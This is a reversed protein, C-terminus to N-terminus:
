WVSLGTALGLVHGLLRLGDQVWQVVEPPLKAAELVDGAVASLALLIVRVLWLTKGKLM